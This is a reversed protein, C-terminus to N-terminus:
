IDIPRLAQKCRPQVFDFHPILVGAVIRARDTERQINQDIAIRHKGLSRLRGGVFHEKGTEHDIYITLHQSTFAAKDACPLLAALLWKGYATDTAGLALALWVFAAAALPKFVYRGTRFHHFDSLVLAGVAVCSLLVPPLITALPLTDTPM